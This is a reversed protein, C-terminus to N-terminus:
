LGGGDERYLRAPGYATAVVESSFGRPINGRLPQHLYAWTDPGEKRLIDREWDLVATGIPAAELAAQDMFDDEM